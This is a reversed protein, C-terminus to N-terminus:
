IANVIEIQSETLRMVERGFNIDLEIHDDLPIVQVVEGVKGYIETLEPTICRVRAPNNNIFDEETLVSSARKNLQPEEKSREFSWTADIDESFTMNVVHEQKNKTDWGTIAHSVPCVRPSDPLNILKPIILIDLDEIYYNGVAKIIRKWYKEYFKISYPTYINKLDGLPIIDTINLNNNIKIKLLPKSDDDADLISITDLSEKFICGKHINQISKCIAEAYDRIM